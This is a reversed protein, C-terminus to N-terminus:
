KVGCKLMFSEYAVDFGEHRLDFRAVESQGIHGQQRTKILVDGQYLMGVLKVSEIGGLMMNNNYPVSIGKVEGAHYIRIQLPHVTNHYVSILTGTNYKAKGVIGGDCSMRMVGSNADNPVNVLTHTAVDTFSDVSTSVLWNPVVPEVVPAVEVSPDVEGSCGILLMSVISASILTKKM